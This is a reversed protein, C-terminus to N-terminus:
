AVIMKTKKAVPEADIMVGSQPLLFFTSHSFRQNATATGQDTWGAYGIHQGDLFLSEGRKSRAARSVDRDRIASGRNSQGEEAVGCGRTEREM